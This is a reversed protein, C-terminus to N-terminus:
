RIAKCASNFALGTDAFETFMSGFRRGQDISEYYADWWDIAAKAIRRETESLNDASRLKLSDEWFSIWRKVGAETHLDTDMLRNLRDLNCLSKTLRAQGLGERAPETEAAKEQAQREREAEKEADAIAKEAAKREREAEKEADAIAKEAAREADAAEREAIEQASYPSIALALAQGQLGSTVFVPLAIFLFVLGKNIRSHPKGGRVIITNKRFVGLITWVTVGLTIFLWLLYFGETSFRGWFTFVFWFAANLVVRVWMPAKFFFGRPGEAFLNSLMERNSVKPKASEM